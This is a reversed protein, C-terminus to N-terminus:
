PRDPPSIRNASIAQPPADICNKLFATKAAGILKRARVEKLCSRRKAHRAAENALQAATTATAAPAAAPSATAARAPAQATAARASLVSLCLCLAGASLSFRM